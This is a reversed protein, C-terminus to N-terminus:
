ASFVPSLKIEIKGTLKADRECSFNLQIIVIYQNATCFTIQFKLQLSATGHKSPRRPTEQKAM